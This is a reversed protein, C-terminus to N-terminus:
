LLSKCSLYGFHFGPTNACTQASHLETTIPTIQTLGQFGAEADCVCVFIPQLIKVAQLGSEPPWPLLIALELGAQTVTEFNFFFFFLLSPILTLM